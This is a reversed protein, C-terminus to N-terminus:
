SGASVFMAPRLWPGWGRSNKARVDLQYRQRPTVATWVAHRATPGLSVVHWVGPTGGVSYRRVRFQFASVSAGNTIPPGWALAVSTVGGSMVVQTTSPTGAIASGASTWLSAGSTGVAQVRARYLRKNTLGSWILQRQRSGVTKTQWSTWGGLSSAASISVRYAYAGSAPDWLVLVAGDRPQISAYSLRPAAQAPSTGSLGALSALVVIIVISRITFRTRLM